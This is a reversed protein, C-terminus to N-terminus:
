SSEEDDETPKGGPPPSAGTVLRAHHEAASPERLQVIYVRADPGNENEALRLTVPGADRLAPDAQAVTAVLFCCIVTLYRRM